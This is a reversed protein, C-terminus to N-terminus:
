PFSESSPEEPAKYNKCFGSFHGLLRALKQKTFVAICIVIKKPPPM